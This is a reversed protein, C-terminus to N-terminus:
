NFGFGFPTLLISVCTFALGLGATEITGDYIAVYHLSIVICLDLCVYGLLTQFTTSILQIYIAIGKAETM